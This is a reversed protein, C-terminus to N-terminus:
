KDTQVNNDSAPSETKAADDQMKAKLERYTQERQDWQFKKSFVAMFVAIALLAVYLVIPNLKANAVMEARAYWGAKLSYLIVASLLLGGPLGVALQYLLKKQRGRNAEWYHM